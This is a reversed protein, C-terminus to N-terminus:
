DGRGVCVDQRRGMSGSISLVEPDRTSLFREIEKLARAQSM